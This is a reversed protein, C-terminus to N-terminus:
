HIRVGARLRAGLTVPRRQLVTAGPTAAMAYLAGGYGTVLGKAIPRDILLRPLARREPVAWIGGLCSYFVRGGAECLRGSGPLWDTLTQPSPQALAARRLTHVQGPNGADESQGTWYLEDGILRATQPGRELTVREVPGGQAAVSCVSSWGAGCDQGTAELWYVRGNRGGLPEGAFEVTGGSLWAVMRASGQGSLPIARLVVRAQTAPIHRAFLVLRPRTETWYAQGDFVTLGVPHSLGQALPAPAGGARPVQLLAGALDTRQLVVFSEGASAVATLGPQSLVRRVPGRGGDLVCLTDAGQQGGELWYVGRPDADLSVVQGTTRYVPYPFGGRVYAAAILLVLVCLLALSLRRSM